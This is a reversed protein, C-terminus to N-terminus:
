RRRSSAARRTGTRRSPCTIPRATVMSTPGATCSCSRRPRRRSASRVFFKFTMRRKSEARPAVIPKVDPVSPGGDRSVPQYLDLTVAGWKGGTRYGVAPDPYGSIQCFTSLMNLFVGAGRQVCLFQMKFAVHMKTGDQKGGGDVRCSSVDSQNRTSPDDGDGTCNWATTAYVVSSNKVVDFTENRWATYATARAALAFVARRRQQGM